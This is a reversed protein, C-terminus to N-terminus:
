DEHILVTHEHVPVKQWLEDVTGNTISSVRELQEADNTNKKKKKENNKRM